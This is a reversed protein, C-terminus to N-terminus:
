YGGSIVLDVDLSRLRFPYTSSVRLALFRGSVMSDIKYDTGVTFTVPPNWVPETDATMSAGVEISITAGTPADIRPIISRGLKVSNTDDFTFGRRELVSTTPTGDDTGGVDFALVKSTSCLMLRAENPAYENENWLSGDFDWSESDSSWLLGLDMNLQANDGYTVNPLDRFGWVKSDWNWVAAKTCTTQGTEPFCVLVESKQPNTVVFSRKYYTYDMNAFIYRRVSGDVISQVGQGTNLVVDGSTLVVHGLPTVAGCGKALMGSEGPIRQFQFIYPQGIFRMSYMSREKYVVLTDGLPLADVILDPTEALDNEGADKTVDTEDWSTPLTGPVASHSWKVMNPFRQTTNVVYSGVPSANGAPTGSMTYTLTSAGTVTVTFTGNYQAPTAGSVTISDGTNLYHPFATTMTATTTVFTISSITKSYKPRTIDLAVLYNKFGIISQCRHTSNWNTLSALDTATDGNWYYPADVGNTMVLIGGLKAASWRDDQTGTPASTPTIETRTTGDDAFVASAGAHVWYKKTPTHYATLFYPTITPANFVAKMGKFKQAFGSVFRINQIHSWVGDALEEPSLDYNVGKGVDRLKAIPM